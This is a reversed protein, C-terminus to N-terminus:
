IMHTTSYTIWTYKDDDNDDDAAAVAVDTDDVVVDAVLFINEAVVSSPFWPTMGDIFIFRKSQMATLCYSQGQTVFANNGNAM